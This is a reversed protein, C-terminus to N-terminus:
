TDTLITSSKTLVLAGSNAAHVIGPSLGAKEISSIAERFRRLQEKTYAMDGPDLSDAVSLHTATGELHLWRNSSIKGALYAADEPNCGLRGMGTDIKLHVKIKKGAKEAASAATEIFEEDSVLLTLEMSAIAPLEEPLVQSLLLVPATIGAARLEMGEPFISVALYEAGAEMACRSVSVVGHGYADAKVPICIKPHPGAKERAARINKRLNDLHIIARSAQM